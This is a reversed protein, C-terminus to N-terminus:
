PQLGVSLYESYADARQSTYSNYYSASIDYSTIASGTDLYAREPNNPDSNEYGDYDVFKYTINYIYSSNNIKTFRPIQAYCHYCNIGSVPLLFSVSAVVGFAGCIATVLPNNISLGLIGVILSAVTIQYSWSLSRNLYVNFTMNEYIKFYLNQYSAGYKLKNTYENGLESALAEKLDAGPSSRSGEKKEDETLFSETLIIIQCCDDMSEAYEVIPIWSDNGNDFPYEVDVWQLIESPNNFYLISVDYKGNEKKIVGERRDSMERVFFSGDLLTGEMTKYSRDSDAYCNSTLSFLLVIILSICIIKKM